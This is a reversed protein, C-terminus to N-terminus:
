PFVEKRAESASEMALLSGAAKGSSKQLFRIFLKGTSIQVLPGTYGLYVPGSTQLEPIMARSGPRLRHPPTPPTSGRRPGGRELEEAERNTLALHTEDLM